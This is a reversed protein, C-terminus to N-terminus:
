DTVMVIVKTLGRIHYKKNIFRSSTKDKSVFRDNM